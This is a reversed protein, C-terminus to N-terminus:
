LGAIRDRNEHALRSCSAAALACVIDDMFTHVKGDEQHSDLRGIIGPKSKDLFGFETYGIVGFINVIGMPLVEDMGYLGDDQQIMALLYPDKIRGEEAASDLEIATIIVNQVERKELIKELTLICDEITLNPMYAIQSSLVVEAVESLEVGRESLLKKVHIKLESRSVSKINM